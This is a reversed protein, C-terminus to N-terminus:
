NDVAIFFIDLFSIKIISYVLMGKKMKGETHVLWSDVSIYDTYCVKMVLLNGSLSENEGLVIRLIDKCM